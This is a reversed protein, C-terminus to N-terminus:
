FRQRILSALHEPAYIILENKLLKQLFYDDTRYHLTMNQRNILRLFCRFEPAAEGLPGSFCSLNFTSFKLGHYTLLARHVGEAMAQIDKDDWELFHSAHAWVANVENVGLPSFATFWRSPGIDGLWRDGSEKETEVLDLWYCSGTDRYYDLSKGLLLGHHTTAVTSGIIQVHPHVVSAGAPPMFNINITFFRTEPDSEFCRRIFELSISFADFLLSSPFDDLTRGHKEGIMVVAHYPAVPFLNPFLATEGRELRGEPLLYEPYRPSTRRWKGDCMFCQEKTEEIRQDLYAYDTEPFLISVKDKLGESLISQHGTLPDFRVEMRQRDLEFSKIPSHFESVQQLAKFSVRAM